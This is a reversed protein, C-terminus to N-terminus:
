ITNEGTGSCGNYPNAHTADSGNVILKRNVYTGSRVSCVSNEAINEQGDWINGILYKYTYNGDQLPITVSHTGDSNDTM